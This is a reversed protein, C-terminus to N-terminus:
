VWLRSHLQSLDFKLVSGKIRAYGTPTGEADVEDTEVVVVQSGEKIRQATRPLYITSSYVVAQGDPGNITRGAGNTEERCISHKVWTDTPDSWNGENDQTSESVVHVFLFQPYQKVAM